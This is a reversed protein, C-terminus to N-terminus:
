FMPELQKYDIYGQFVGSKLFRPYAAFLVLLGADWVYRDISLPMEVDKVLKTVEIVFMQWKYSANEINDTEPIPGLSNKINEIDQNTIYEEEEETLESFYYYHHEILSENVREAFGFIEEIDEIDGLHELLKQKFEEKTLSKFEEEETLTQTSKEETLSKKTITIISDMKHLLKSTNITAQQQKNSTAQQKNSTAQKIQRVNYVTEIKILV